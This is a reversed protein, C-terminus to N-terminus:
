IIKDFYLTHLVKSYANYSTCLFVAVYCCDHLLEVLKGTLWMSYNPSNTIIKLHSVCRVKSRYLIKNVHFLALPCSKVELISGRIKSLICCISLKSIIEHNNYDEFGHGSVMCFASLITFHEATRWTIILAMSACSLEKSHHPSSM